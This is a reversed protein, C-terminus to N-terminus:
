GGLCGRAAGRATGSPPHSFIFVVNQASVVRAAADPTGLSQLASRVHAATTRARGATGQVIVDVATGDTAYATFDAAYIPAYGTWGNGPVRSPDARIDAKALCERV